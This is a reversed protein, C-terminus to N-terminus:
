QALPQVLDKKHLLSLLIECNSLFINKLLPTASDPVLLRYSQQELWRKAVLKPDEEISQFYQQLDRLEEELPKELLACFIDHHCRELAQHALETGYRMTLGEHQYDDAGLPRLSALYALKGFHTDLACLTHEYLDKVAKDIRQNSNHGSM